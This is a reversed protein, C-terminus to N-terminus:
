SFPFNTPLSTLMMARVVKFIKQPCLPSLSHLRFGCVKSLAPRTQLAIYSVAGGVRVSEQMVLCM